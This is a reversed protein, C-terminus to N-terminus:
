RGERQAAGEDNQQRVATIIYNVDVDDWKECWRGSLPNYILGCTHVGGASFGRGALM